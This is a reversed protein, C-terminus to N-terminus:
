SHAVEVLCLAERFFNDLWLDLLNPRPNLWVISLSAKVYGNVCMCVFDLWGTNQVNWDGLIVM